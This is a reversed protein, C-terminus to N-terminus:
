LLLPRRRRGNTRHCRRYAMGGRDPELLRFQFDENRGRFEHFFSVRLCVTLMRSAGTDLLGCLCAHARFPVRLVRGRYFSYVSNLILCGGRCILILVPYLDIFDAYLWLLVFHLYRLYLTVRLASTKRVHLIDNTLRVRIVNLDDM